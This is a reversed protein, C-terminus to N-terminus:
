QRDNETRTSVTFSTMATRCFGVCTVVTGVAARHIAKPVSDHEMWRWIGDVTTPVSRRAKKIFQAIKRSKPCINPTFTRGLDRDVKEQLWSPIVVGCWLRELSAFGERPSCRCCREGFVSSRTGKSAEPFRVAGAPTAAPVDLTSLHYRPLFIPAGPPRVSHQLELRHEQASYVLM